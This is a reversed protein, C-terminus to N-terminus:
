RPFWFYLITIFLSGFALFFCTHQMTEKFTGSGGRFDGGSVGLICGNSKLYSGLGYLEQPKAVQEM